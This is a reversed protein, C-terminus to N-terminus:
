ISYEYVVIITCYSSVMDDCQGDDVIGNKNCQCAVSSSSCYFLMDLM